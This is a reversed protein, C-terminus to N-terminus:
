TSYVVEGEPSILYVSNAGLGLTERIENEMTDALWPIKTGLKEQAAKLQLLRETLNQPQLYGDLEPHRLSKYIFFFQVGKRGYDANAAEIERYGRHFDPCTLCGASLVTYKGKTIENLSVQSGDPLVANLEPLTGQFVSGRKQAQLNFGTLSILLVLLFLRTLTTKM